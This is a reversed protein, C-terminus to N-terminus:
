VDLGGRRISVFRLNDLILARHSLALVPDPPETLGSLVNDGYRRLLEDTTMWVESRRLGLLRRGALTPTNFAWM